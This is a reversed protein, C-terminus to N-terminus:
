KGDQQVRRAKPLFCLWAVASLRLTTLVALSLRDSPLLGPWALLLLLLLLLGSLLFTVISFTKRSGIARLLAPAGLRLARTLNPSAM